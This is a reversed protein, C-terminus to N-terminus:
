VGGLYIVQGTISVSSSKLIWDIANSVDKLNGLEVIANLKLVKKLEEENINNLLDTKIASPAIVNCTIGYGFLEKAMIRTLSIIAAKSSTYIAEGRVEHKVAMSAFNIIRGFNNKMMIKAAERSMIFTGLFNTKLTKLAADYPVLLIPMLTPNIGANNILADLRGYKKKIKSFMKRVELEDSIDLCYHEYNDFSLVNEGRSCGIVQYELSSYYEALYKGIGKSSGTILITTEKKNM